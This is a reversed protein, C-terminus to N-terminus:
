TPRCRASWEEALLGWIVSDRVGIHTEWHGRLLGERVFTLRTLLANSAANDVDTDAFVRRAGEQEFLRGLLCSVAECALGRGWHARALAYGIEFVRGQREEHAALTGIATNDSRLTIAWTRWDADAARLAVHERTQELSTHPSHSWWRMAAVDAYVPHLAAADDASLARLVLRESRLVPLASM